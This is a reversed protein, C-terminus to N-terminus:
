EGPGEEDLSTTAVVRQPVRTIRCAGSRDSRGTMGRDVLAVITVPGQRPVILVPRTVLRSRWSWASRTRDCM